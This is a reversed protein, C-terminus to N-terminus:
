VRCDGYGLQRKIGALGRPIDAAVCVGLARHTLEAPTFRDGEFLTDELKDVADGFITAASPHFPFRNQQTDDNGAEVIGSDRVRNRGHSPEIIASLHLYDDNVAAGTSGEQFSDPGQQM